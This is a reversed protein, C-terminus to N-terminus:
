SGGLKAMIGHLLDPSLQSVVGPHSQMFASAAGQLVQPHAKAYNLLAGIAAPEGSAVATSNTGALQSATDADVPSAPHSTFSALLQRGLGELTSADMTPLSNTLHGALAHPDMTEVHDSAADAAQQPSVGAFLDGALKGINDMFGM